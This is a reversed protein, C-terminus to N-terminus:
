DDVITDRVRQDIGEYHGAILILRSDGLFKKVRAQNLIKGQPTFFVIRKKPDRNQRPYLKQGLISEAAAFLPEPRFVMGPGGGFSPADVKGGKINSYDRLNHINVKLLGKDQARKIISQNFVADFMKPFITIIDVIM